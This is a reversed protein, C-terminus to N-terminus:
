PMCKGKAEAKEVCKVQVRYLQERTNPNERKIKKLCKAFHLINVKM